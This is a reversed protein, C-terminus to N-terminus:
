LGSRDRWAYLGLGCGVLMWLLGVSKPGFTSILFEYVGLWKSGRWIQYSFLVDALGLCFFGVAIVLLFKRSQERNPLKM